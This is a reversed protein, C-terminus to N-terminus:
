MDTRPCIFFLVDFGNAVMKLATETQSYIGFRRAVVSRRDYERELGSLTFHVLDSQPISVSFLARAWEITSSISDDAANFIRKKVPGAGGTNRTSTSRHLYCVRPM